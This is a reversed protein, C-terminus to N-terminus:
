VFWMDYCKSPDFAEGYMVGHVYSDGVLEWKLPDAAAPRIVLPVSGGAVVAVLDGVRAHAALGFYGRETRVFRRGVVCRALRQTFALCVDWTSERGQILSAVTDTLNNACTGGLALATFVVPSKVGLAKIAANIRMEKIHYNYQAAFPDGVPWLESPVRYHSDPHISDALAQVGRRVLNEDGCTLTTAFASLTSEAPSPPYAQGNRAGAIREWERFIAYSKAHDDQASLHFTTGVEVIQDLVFGSLGLETDANRFRVTPPTTTTSRGSACYDGFPEGFYGSATLSGAPWPIRWDPVWSPVTFQGSTGLQQQQEEEHGQSVVHGQIDVPKAASLIDLHPYYKLMAVATRRYVEEPGLSYDPRVGMEEADSALSLFAFVKDEPNTVKCCRHRSLVALLTTSPRPMLLRSNLSVRAQFLAAFAQTVQLTARCPVQLPVQCCFLASILDQFPMEADGCCVAADQQFSVEQVIWSRSFWPRSFLDTLAVYADAAETLSPIGYKACLEPSLRDLRRPQEQVDTTMVALALRAALKFAKAGQGDPTDEGLWVCVRSAKSYIQSMLAVQSSKEAVNQQDICIQDVWFLCSQQRHRARGLARALNETIELYETSSLYLRACTDPSTDDRWCYSLATYPPPAALDVHTIRGILPSSKHGTLNPLLELLRIQDQQASFPQYNFNNGPPSPSSAAIVPNDPKQSLEAAISSISDVTFQIKALSRAFITSMSPQRDPTKHCVFSRNCYHNKGQCNISSRTDYSRM